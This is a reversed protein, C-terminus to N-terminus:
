GGARRGDPRSAPRQSVGVYIGAMRSSATAFPKPAPVISIFVDDIFEIEEVGFDEVLWRLEGARKGGVTQAAEQRFRQPLVHLSLPM